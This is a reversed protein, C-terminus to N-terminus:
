VVTASMLGNLSKIPIFYDRRVLRLRLLFLGFLSLFYCIFSWSLVGWPSNTYIKHYLLLFNFNDVSNCM